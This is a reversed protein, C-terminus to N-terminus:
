RWVFMFVGPLPLGQVVPSIETFKAKFLYSLLYAQM